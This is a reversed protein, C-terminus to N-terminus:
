VKLYNSTFRKYLAESHANAMKTLTPEVRDIPEQIQLLKHIQFVIDIAQKPDALYEYWIVFPDIGNETFYHYWLANHIGIFSIGRQIRKHPIDIAVPEPKDVFKHEDESWIKDDTEHWVGTEAAKVHSIAQRIVNHRRLWIFQTKVPDCFQQIVWFNAYAVKVGCIGNESARNKLFKETDESQSPGIEIPDGM